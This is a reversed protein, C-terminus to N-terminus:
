EVVFSTCFIGVRRHDIDISNSIRSADNIRSLTLYTIVM